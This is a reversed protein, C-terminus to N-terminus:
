GSTRTREALHRVAFRGRATDLKITAFAIPSDVDIWILRFLYIHLQCRVPQYQAWPGFRVCLVQVFVRLVVPHPRNGAPRRVRANVVARFDDAGYEGRRLRVGNAQFLVVPGDSAYPQHDARPGVLLDRVGLPFDAVPDADREPALPQYRLRNSLENAMTELVQFQVFDPASVEIPVLFRFANLFFAAEGPVMSTLVDVALQHAIDARLLDSAQRSAIPQAPAHEIADHLSKTVIYQGDDYCVKVKDFRQLYKLNDFILNVMDRKM